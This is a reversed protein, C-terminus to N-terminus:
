IESCSRKQRHRGSASYVTGNVSMTSVDYSVHSAEFEIRLGDPIKFGVVGGFLVSADGDIRGTNSPLEPFKWKIDVPLSKGVERESIGARARM